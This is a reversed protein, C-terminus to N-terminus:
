SEEVETLLRRGGERLRALATPLVDEFEELFVIAQEMENQTASFVVNHLEPLDGPKYKERVRQEIEGLKGTRAREYDRIRDALENLRKLMEEKTSKESIGTLADDHESV